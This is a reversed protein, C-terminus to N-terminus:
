PKKHNRAMEKWGSGRSPVNSPAASDEAPQGSARPARINRRKRIASGPADTTGRVRQTFGAARDAEPAAEPAAEQAPPQPEDSGTDDSGTEVVAWDEVPAQPPGAAEGIGFDDELERWRRAVRPHDQQVQLLTQVPTAFLVTTPIKLPEEGAPPHVWLPLRSGLTLDVSASVALGNPGEVDAHFLHFDEFTDLRVVVALRGEREEVTAAWHGPSKLTNSM